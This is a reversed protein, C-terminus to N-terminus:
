SDACDVLDSQFKIETWEFFQCLQCSGCQTHCPDISFSRPCLPQLNSSQNPCCRKEGVGWHLPGSRSWQILCCFLDRTCIFFFTCSWRIFVLCLVLLLCDLGPDSPNKHILTFFVHCDSEPSGCWFNSKQNSSAAWTISLWSGDM